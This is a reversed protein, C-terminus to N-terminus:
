PARTHEYSLTHSRISPATPSQSTGVKGDGSFLSQAFEFEGRTIPKTLAERDKSALHREVFVNAFQVPAPWRLLCKPTHIQASADPTPLPPLNRKM